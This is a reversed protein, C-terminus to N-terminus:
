VSASPAAGELTRNRRGCGRVLKGRSNAPRKLNPRSVSCRRGESSPRLEPPPASGSPWAAGPPGNDRGDRGAGRAAGATPVRGRRGKVQPRGAAGGPGRASRAALAALGKHTRRPAGVVRPGPRPRAMGAEWPRPRRSGWGCLPEPPGPEGGARPSPAARAGGVRGRPSLAPAPDRRPRGADPPPVTPASLARLLQQARGGRRVARREAGLRAQCAGELGRTHALAGRVRGGLGAVGGRAGRPALGASRRACEAGAGRAGACARGAGGGAMRGLTARERGPPELSLYEPLPPPAALVARLRM